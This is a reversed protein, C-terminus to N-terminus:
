RLFDGVGPCIEPPISMSNGGIEGPIWRMEGGHIPLPPWVYLHSACLVMFAVITCHESQQKWLEILGM